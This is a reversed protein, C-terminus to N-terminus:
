LLRLIQPLLPAIEDNVITKVCHHPRMTVNRSQAEIREMVQRRTMANRSMVRKVRLEVPATVEWVEDVMSDIGSEYVIASEVWLPRGSRSAAWRAIDDRVASHVIGNLRSLMIEDAFVIEALRRRDISRDDLIVEASILEAIRCKMEEDRDMLRRAERDCDYVEHGMVRLIQAVVSKGSGIGGAIAILGTM